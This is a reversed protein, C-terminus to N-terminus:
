PPAPETDPPLTPTLLLPADLRYTPIPCPTVTPLEILASSAPPPGVSPQDTYHIILPSFLVFLVIGAVALDYQWTGREYSWFLVRVIARWLTRMDTPQCEM